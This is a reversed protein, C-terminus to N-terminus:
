GAPTVRLVAGDDADILLLLAGDTDVAVDRVRGVDTLLREEGVVMDGDMELRVLAGPNLSGVLLDGQWDAYMDGQYFVMGGPAIVPDWYYQPEVFGAAEHDAAGTGVPTTDYNQGYSVVPWGYNNGASILNLEDGGAPGHEIAWLDGTDPRIAAGQINRHGYTYIEALADAQDAFPNGAVAEGDGTVRVIKGYTKDLDQAFVREAPVFHEGTTVYVEDGNPVVRSGYHMANPSPPTQVFIDRVDDLSTLDDSLTARAAATSSGGDAHPKAYTFFIHRTQAFDPALEVDLLGGQGEALLDPLGTVPAEVLDGNTDIVRLQGSRETVLYGGEPLVAIGWPHSLGTAIQTTELRLGSLSEPARTQETFAPTFEPVNPASQAVPTNSQALAPAAAIMAMMFTFKM